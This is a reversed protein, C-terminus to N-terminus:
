EFKLYPQMDAIDQVSLVGAAQRLAIHAALRQFQARQWQRQAQFFAARAALLESNQRMGLARARESASLALAASHRAAALASVMADSSQTQLQAQAVALTIQRQADALLASARAYEAQAQAQASQVAFGAFIPVSVVVGVSAEHARRLAPTQLTGNPTSQKVWRAQLHAQPAHEARAQDIAREAQAVQARIRLLQPHTQALDQWYAEDRWDWHAPLEAATYAHRKSTPVESVHASSDGLRPEFHSPSQEPNQPSLSALPLNSPNEDDVVLGSLSQLALARARREAQAALLQASLVDARAAAEREDIITAAGAEFRARASAHQARVAELEAVTSREHVIAMRWDFYAQTLQAILAQRQQDRAAEAVVEGLQARAWAAQQAPHFLPVNAALAAQHRASRWRADLAAMTGASRQDHQASSLELGISPLLAARQGDAAARAAAIAHDAAHLAPHEALAAQLHDLLSPQAAAALTAASASGLWAGLVVWRRWAACLRLAIRKLCANPM